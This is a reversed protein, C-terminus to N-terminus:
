WLAGEWCGSGYPGARPENCYAPLPLDPLVDVYEVEVTSFHERLQSLDSENIVLQRVVQLVLHELYDYAGTRLQALMDVFSLAYLVYTHRSSSEPLLGYILRLSKLQHAKFSPDLASPCLSLDPSIFTTHGAHRNDKLVLMELAPLSAVISHLIAFKHDRVRSVNTVWVERVCPLTTSHTILEAYRDWIGQTDQGSTLRETQSVHAVQDPSVVAIADDHWSRNYVQRTFALRTDAQFARHSMWRAIDSGVAADRTYLIQTASQSPTSPLLALYYQLAAQPLNHITLRRLKEMHLPQPDPVAGDALKSLVLSELSPCLSLFNAIAPHLGQMHIDCLALHTLHPLPSSPLLPVGRIYLDRLAATATTPLLFSHTPWKFLDGTRGCLSCSMLGPSSFKSLSQVYNIHRHGIDTFHLERVQHAHSPYFGDLIDTFDKSPTVLVALPVSDSIRTQAIFASNSRTDVTSWLLPNSLAVTRLHRCTSTVPVLMTIDRAASHWFPQFGIPQKDLTDPIAEMIHNLIEVPLACLPVRANVTERLDSVTKLLM